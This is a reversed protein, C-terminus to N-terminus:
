RTTGRRCPTARTAASRVPYCSAVLRLRTVLEEDPKKVKAIRNVLTEEMKFVDAEKTIREPMFHRMFALLAAKENTTDYGIRKLMAPVSGRATVKTDATPWVGIGYKAMEQWPFTMGPDVKRDCSCDSHGLVNEPRIHHRKIIDKALAALAQMQAKPYARQGFSPSYLEIGISAANLSSEGRWSSKGAHWAVKNEPVFQTIIGKDDIMYHPGVGFEDRWMKVMKRVPYAFNHIVLFKIPREEVREGFHPWDTIKQIKM